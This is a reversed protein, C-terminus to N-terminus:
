SKKMARILLETFANQMKLGLDAGEQLKKRFITDDWIDNELINESYFVFKDASVPATINATHQLLYKYIALAAEDGISKALRTKCTGLEPNRTFIILAKKSIPFHFNFALEKNNNTDKTNLIGM